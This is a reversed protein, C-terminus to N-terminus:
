GTAPRSIIVFLLFIFFNDRVCQSRANLGEELFCKVIGKSGIDMRVGSSGYSHGMAYESTGIRM